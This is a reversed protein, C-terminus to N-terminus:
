ALGTYHTDCHDRRFDNIIFIIHDLKTIDLSIANKWCSHIIEVDNADDVPQLTFGEPPVIEM